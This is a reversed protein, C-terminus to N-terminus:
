SPEVPGKEDNLLMTRFRGSIYVKTYVVPLTWPRRTWPHKPVEAGTLNTQVILRARLFAKHNLILYVIKAKISM